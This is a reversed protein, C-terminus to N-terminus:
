APVGDIARDFHKHQKMAEVFQALVDATVPGSVVGQVAATKGVPLKLDIGAKKVIASADGIVAIAKGHTFAEAVFHLALGNKMLADVSAKGGPIIVADYAVSAANPAPKAVKVSSGDDAKLPAVSRAIVDVIAKHQKELAAKIEKVDKADVGDAALLAVKRGKINDCPKDMSLAPSTKDYPKATRKKKVTMGINMAVGNALEDAVNILLEDLVRQKVEPVDCM